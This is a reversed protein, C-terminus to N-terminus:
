CSNGYRLGLFGGDGFYEGNCIFFDHISQNIFRVLKSM